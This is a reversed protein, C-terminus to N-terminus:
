NVYLVYLCVSHVKMSYINPDCVACVTQDEEHSYRMGAGVGGEDKESNVVQKDLFFSPSDDERIFEEDM